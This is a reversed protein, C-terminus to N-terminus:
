ALATNCKRYNCLEVNNKHPKQMTKTNDLILFLSPLVRM